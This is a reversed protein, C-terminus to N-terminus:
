RMSSEGALERSVAVWAGALGLAGGAAIVVLASSPQLGILAIDGSYLAVLHEVPGTVLRTAAAAVACAVVGGPSGTGCDPTCFPDDSSRM